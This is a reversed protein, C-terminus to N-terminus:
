LIYNCERNYGKTNRIFKAPNGAIISNNPVNKTVVSGAGIISNDGINVGKLIIAKAGIWVNNGIRVPSIKTKKGDFGHWDTDYIITKDAIIANNGIIIEEQASITTGNNIFVNDGIIIRAKKDAYLEIPISFSRLSLNKGGIIKGKGHILPTLGDVDLGPNIESFKWNCLINKVKFRKRVSNIKKYIFLAQESLYKRIFNNSESIYVENSM